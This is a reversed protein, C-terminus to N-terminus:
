SVEFAPALEEHQEVFLSHGQAWALSDRYIRYFTPVLILVLVTALLLGFALSAAMPILYQAQFSTEFLIPLLGAITTASTLLVPRFRRRGADILADVLDDKSRVRTNIFDILVISDNVVVGTLAVLGFFSFLTLKLQMVFHGGIAGVLGFPIVCMIIVPQIYSKFQFTLLAYMVLLAIVSAFLLSRLSERSQEKQGEWNVTIGPHEKLLDPIFAKVEPPTGTLMAIMNQRPTPKGQLAAVIESANAVSENVDASITVSRHQNLRNIESYGRVVEIEALETIPREQGDNGRIRIDEFGSLTQREGAPYRVMLKVEHRGRQLRMVEAGYYSARITDAIDQERMGMSKANDKLSIQFEWKGPKADDSVDFVGNFKSLREKCAAVAEELDDVHESDALLKFEIPTGAPGAAISGYSLSDVGAIDPVKARWEAILQQSTIERFSSDVLEVTVAGVHSGSVTGAGPGQEIAVTGVNRYIVKAIDGHKKGLESIAREVQLTARNTISEPTGDPFTVKCLIINSDIKPFLVFPVFGGQVFGVTAILLGVAASMTIWRYNIAVRLVKTYINSVFWDLGRESQRNVWAFLPVIVHQLPWCCVGLFRFFLSDRHALHCPLITTSECLSIVLMAIVSIPMVAIFKGMIGSVFLMPCFAIITTMVSAAVSPVVEVTGDIAAQMPTKGMQRHAYVNEGVVIADDVIIGLAMLFAFMSLMNLTQDLGLLIGGAGLMSIPIGLAVWFALKLELFCALVLFVLLLGTKGNRILLDLRDRVEVARDGWAVVEYGGPLKLGECFDVVEDSIALLDEQSTRQVELQVAQRGNVSCIATTDEFGDNVEGIDAINLAVGDPNTVIPIKEIEVGVLRKNKSRLLVEESQSKLTGAPLELNHQRVIEAVDTLSLGHERLKAEPIEIDIQYKRAGKVQVQSVNDLQLLKDRVNEAVARLETESVPNGDPREPALVSVSIAAERFTIQQIEPAETREPFSPILRVASDVEDVVKRVNKVNSRLELVVSGSGEKAVSMMKKIGDVTQVAEEIKQCIGREIEEPTAGPYPVTILVIELEFEPFVERRMRLLSITGVILIAVMLTNMAPSNKIAGKVFSHM